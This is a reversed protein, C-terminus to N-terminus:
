ELYGLSKLNDIIKDAEDASYIDEPKNSLSGNEYTQFHFPHNKLFGEEFAESIIKGDLDDPVPIGMTYLITPFLDILQIGQLEEASRFNSGKALLIGDPRHMGNAGRENREKKIFSDSRQTIKLFKGSIDYKAERTVLQIDPLGGDDNLGFADEAKLVDIFISEGTEPDKIRKLKQILEDTLKEFNDDTVAGLPYIRKRNIRIYEAEAMFAKTGPWCIESLWDAYKFRLSLRGFTKPFINKLFIRLNPSTHRFLFLITKKLYAFFVSSLTPLQQPYESGQDQKTALYGNARLWENIHFVKNIRPGAGHDSMVFFATDADIKELLLSIVNDLERYVAYIADSFEARCASDYEPHTPDMYKWFHHQVIDPNNFKVIFFDWPHKDMFYEVVRYRMKISKFIADLAAKRRKDTQLYAGLQLNIRYDPFVELLEKKLEAPYTFDSHTDPTDLGSILRGNIPEPPYTMPVNLVIVSKGAVSLLKWLTKSRNDGGNVLKLEYSGPLMRTFGIIGNKGPNKGTALSVWAPPSLPPVVSRLKGYVGRQMLRKFAPLQDKDVLPKIIDMTAGDLGLVFVKAM